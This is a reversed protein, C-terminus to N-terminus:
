AAAGGLQGSGQLADRWGGDVEGARADRTQALLAGAQAQLGAALRGLLAADENSLRHGAPGHLALAGAIAGDRGVIPAGAFFGQGQYMPHSAALHRPDHHVDSLHVPGEGLLVRGLPSASAPLAETHWGPRGTEGSVVCRVTNAGLRLTLSARPVRFIAATRQVDRALAAEQAARDDRAAAQSDSPAEHGGGGEPPGSGHDTDSPASTAQAASLVAELGRMVSDVGMAKAQDAQEMSEPANWAVLHVAVDPWQRRLRRVQLRTQTQPAGSLSCLLIQRAAGLGLGPAPGESLATLPVARTPHGAHNLAHALMDASLADLESRLGVVLATPAQAARAGAAGLEDAQLEAVIRATGVLLRHRHAATAAHTHQRAALALMPLATGSYFRNLSHQKVEQYAMDEAEDLDGSILRHYLQTPEDFVPTSSLLVDLFRLPALHRGLVVLCVTLPTALVLGVPGWLSAWFAASILVALPSVGTSGGYALPEVINNSILELMAILALTWLVMTWGPDVAFAMVVPFVAGVAPGLYPVFRLVAALGGWLLAGPVGIWWLGLAMPLGYGLNVLVQALLYRSVREASESLADAMLHPDGGMLRLVRDRLERRQLLMFVLLIVVLAATALQVGVSALFELTLPGASEAQVAVRTPKPEPKGDLKLVEKAADFEGEVMGMLRAVEKTTGSPVLAPRLDRLKKQINQRHTPLEQGLEGVQIATLVAAGSLLTLTVAIVLGVALGRPVSWRRLWGVMPDLVFALLAALALPILLSQGVYLGLLGLAIAAGSLVFRQVGPMVPQAPEQVPPAPPTTSREPSRQPDASPAATTASASYPMDTAPSHNPARLTAPASPRDPHDSM